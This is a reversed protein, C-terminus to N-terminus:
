CLITAMLAFVYCLVQFCFKVLKVNKIKGAKLLHLAETDQRNFSFSCSGPLRVPRYPLNMM